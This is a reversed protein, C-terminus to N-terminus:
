SVIDCAVQDDGIAPIELTNSIFSTTCWMIFKNFVRVIFVM